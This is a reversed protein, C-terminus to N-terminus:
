FIFGKKKKTLETEILLFFFTLLKTYTVFSYGKVHKLFHAIQNLPRFGCMAEFKTLAIAMEPKHNGDKYVDPRKQHLKAALEKNPHAQISLSENVSLVKFLFPLDNHIYESLLQITGDLLQVRSPGSVHTGMWLEAYPLNPNVDKSKLLQAVKSENSPKGWAYNQAQLQLKVLEQKTKKKDNKRELVEKKEEAM